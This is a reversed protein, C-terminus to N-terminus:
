PRASAPCPAARRCRGSRSRGAGPAPGPGRRRARAGARSGRRRRRAGPRRGRRAGREGLQAPRRGRDEAVDELGAVDQADAPAARQVRQDSCSGRSGAQVTTWSTPLTGVRWSSTFEISSTRRRASRAVPGTKGSWTGSSTPLASIASARAVSEIAEAVSPRNSEGSGRPRRCRRRPGRAGGRDAGGERVGVGAGDVVAPPTASMAEITRSASPRWTRAAPRGSRQM